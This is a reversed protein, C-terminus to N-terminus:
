TSERRYLATRLLLRGEKTTLTIVYLTSLPRDVRLVWAGEDRAGLHRDLDARPWLAVANFFANARQLERDEARLRIVANQSEVTAGVAWVGAVALVVTAILVELLAIGARARSVGQDEERPGCVM